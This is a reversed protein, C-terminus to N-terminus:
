TSNLTRSAFLITRREGSTLQFLEAGLGLKSADTQLYFVQDFLPHSLYQETFSQKVRTFMKLEEEGFKWPVGQKILNILSAILSVHHDAFKWYICFGIFSQLEKGTRPKPFGRIAM